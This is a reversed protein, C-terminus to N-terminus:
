SSAPHTNTHTLIHIHVHVHTDIRMMACVCEYVCASMCVCVCVPLFCIEAMCLRRFSERLGERSPLASACGSSKDGSTSLCAYMDGGGASFTKSLATNSLAIDDLHTDLTFHLTYQLTIHSRIDPKRSDHRYKLVWVWACVGTRLLAVAGSESTRLVCCDADPSLFLLAADL